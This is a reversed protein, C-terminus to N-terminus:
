PEKADTQYIKSIVLGNQCNLCNIPVSISNKVFIFFTFFICPTCARVGTYKLDIQHEKADIQYIKSIVLRNQCNLSYISVFFSKKSSFLFHCFICPTRARVGIYEWDTQPEKAERQYIKSVVLGNQCNLCYISVSLSKKVLIFFTFFICPTHARLRVGIYETQYIKSLVLGNQCNLCYFSM